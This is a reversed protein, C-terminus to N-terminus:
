VVGGAQVDDMFRSLATWSLGPNTVLAMHPGPIDTIRLSPLIAKAEDAHHRAILRDETARIYLVPVACARLLERADVAMAVRARCALAAPGAMQHAQAVLHRLGRVDSGSLLAKVQYTRPYLRFLVPRALHRMWGPLPVPRRVFSSALIIGRLGPPRTAAVMLAMPGSFSWGLLYFPDRTPLAAVVTPLLDEYTNRDGSPYSVTITHVDPPVCERLPGFLLDSGEMGPLLVLTRM